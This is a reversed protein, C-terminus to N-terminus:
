RRSILTKVIKENSKNIPIEILTLASKKPSICFTFPRVIMVDVPKNKEDLWLAVFPYFVFFSHIRMKQKTKFSFFLTKAKERRSFMLGIIKKLFNCEKAVIELKKKKYKIIIKKM